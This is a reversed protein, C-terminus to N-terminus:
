FDCQRSSGCHAFLACCEGGLCFDFFTANKIAWCQIRTRRTPDTPDKGTTYPAWQTRSRRTPGPCGWRHGGRQAHVDFPGLGAAAHTPAPRSAAPCSRRRCSHRCAFCFLTVEKNEQVPVGELGPFYNQGLFLVWRSTHKLACCQLTDAADLSWMDCWRRGPVCVHGWRHERRHLGQAVELPPANPSGHSSEM